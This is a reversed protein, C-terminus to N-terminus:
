KYRVQHTEEGYTDDYVEEFSKETKRCYDIFKDIEKDLFKQKDKEIQKLEKECGKIINKNDKFEKMMDLCKKEKGKLNLYERKDKLQVVLKIEEKESLEM